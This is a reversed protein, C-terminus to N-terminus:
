VKELCEGVRDEQRDEHRQELRTELMDGSSESFSVKARGGGEVIQWEALVDCGPGQRSNLLAEHGRHVM